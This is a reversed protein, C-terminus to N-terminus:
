GDSTTGREATQRKAAERQERAAIGETRAAELKETTLKPIAWVAVLTLVV